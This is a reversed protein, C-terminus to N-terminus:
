KKESKLVRVKYRGEIKIYGLVEMEKLLKSHMQKPISHNRGLFKRIESRDIVGENYVTCLKERM